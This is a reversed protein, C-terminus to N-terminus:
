LLVSNEGHKFTRLNTSSQSRGILTVRELKVATNVSEGDVLNSRDVSKCFLYKGPNRIKYQSFLKMM